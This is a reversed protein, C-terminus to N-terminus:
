EPLVFAGGCVSAEIVAASRLASCRRSNARSLRITPTTPAISASVRFFSSSRSNPPRGSFAPASAPGRHRASTRRSPRSARRGAASSEAIRRDPRLGCRAPINRRRDSSGCGPRRRSEGRPQELFHALLAAEGVADARLQHVVVVGRQQHDRGRGARVPGALRDLDNAVLHLAHGVFPHRRFLQGGGLVVDDAGIGDVVEIGGRRDGARQDSQLGVAEADVVDLPADVEDVIDRKVLHLRRRALQQRGFRRHQQEPGASLSPLLPHVVRRRGRM